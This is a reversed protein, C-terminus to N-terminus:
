YAACRLPMLLYPFNFANCRQSHVTCRSWYYYQDSILLILSNFLHMASLFHSPFKFRQTICRCMPAILKSFHMASPHATPSVSHLVIFSHMCYLVLSTFNYIYLCMSLIGLSLSLSLSFFFFFLLSHSFLVFLPLHLYNIITSLQYRYLSFSLSLQFPLLPFTYSFNLIRITFNESNFFQLSYQCLNSVQRSSVCLFICAVYGFMVSLNARSKVLM